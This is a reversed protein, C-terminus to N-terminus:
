LNKKNILFLNKLIIDETRQSELLKRTSKKQISNEGDPSNKCTNKNIFNKIYIELNKSKSIIEIDGNRVSPLLSEEIIEPLVALSKTGILYSQNM